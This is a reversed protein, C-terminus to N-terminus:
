AEARRMYAINYFTDALQAEDLRMDHRLLGKNRLDMDRHFRERMAGFKVPKATDYSFSVSPSKRRNFHELQRLEALTSVGLMHHFCDALRTNWLEKLWEYRPERYPWFFWTCGRSLAASVYNVRDHYDQGAVVIGLTFEGQLIKHTENFQEWNWKPHQLKDPAVVVSPHIRRAAQRLEVPSLPVGLEHFSNDLIVLRGSASQTRYFDAYAENELVLHALAFDLDCLPSIDTLHATPIEM